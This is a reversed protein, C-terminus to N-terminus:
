SAPQASHLLSHWSSSLFRRTEACHCWYDRSAGGKKKISCTPVQATALSYTTDTQTVDFPDKTEREKKERKKRKKKKRKKKKKKEKERPELTTIM